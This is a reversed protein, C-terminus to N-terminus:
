ESKGYWLMNADNEGVRIARNGTSWFFDDYMEIALESCGNTADPCKPEGMDIWSFHDTTFQTSFGSSGFSELFMKHGNDPTHGKNLKMQKGPRALGFV